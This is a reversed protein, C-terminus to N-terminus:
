WCQTATGTPPGAPGTTIGQAGFSNLTLSQCRTDSTAQTGKPSAQLLYDADTAHRISLSYWGGNSENSGLIDTTKNSDITATQYSHDTSYYREMRNALDLLATQGDSRRARTVYERYGPYAITTLIGVIAVVVLLEILSFGKNM